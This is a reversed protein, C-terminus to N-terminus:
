STSHDAMLGQELALYENLFQICSKYFDANTNEAAAEALQKATPILFQQLLQDQLQRAQESGQKEEEILTVLADLMLLVSDEPDTTSRDKVLQGSKLLDRYRVLSPGYSKGDLYYSANLPLLNKSYPNTFLEYHEDKIEQLNKRSLIESLQLIVTDLRQNIQERTLASFIGRWRSMREADPEDQFFSKLLDLFRLRVLFLDRDTIDTAPNM